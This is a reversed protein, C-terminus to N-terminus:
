DRWGGVLNKKALSLSLNPKKKEQASVTIYLSNVNATNSDDSSLHLHAQSNLGVDRQAAEHCAQQYPCDIFSVKNRWGHVRSPPSQTDKRQLPLRGDHPALAHVTCMQDGHRLLVHSPECDPDLTSASPQTCCGLSLLSLWGVRRLAFAVAAPPPLSTSEPCAPPAMRGLPASHSALNPM